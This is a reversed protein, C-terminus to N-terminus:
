EGVAGTFVFQKRKDTPVTGPSEITVDVRHPGDGTNTISFCNQIQIKAILRAEPIGNEYFASSNTSSTFPRLVSEGQPTPTDDQPSQKYAIYITYQDTTVIEYNNDSTFTLPSNKPGKQIMNGATNASTLEAGTQEDKLDALITRALLAAQTEEYSEKSMNLGLPFLAIISTFAVAAVGMAIVVETLSFASQERWPRWPRSPPIKNPFAFHPIRFKLFALASFCGRKASKAHPTPSPERLPRLPNNKQDSFNKAFTASTPHAFSKM